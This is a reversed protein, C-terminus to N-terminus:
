KHKECMQSIIKRKEERKKNNIKYIYLNYKNLYRQIISKYKKKGEELENRMRINGCVIKKRKRLSTILTFLQRHNSEFQINYISFSREPFVM